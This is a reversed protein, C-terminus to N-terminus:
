DQKADTRGAVRGCWSMREGASDLLPNINFDRQISLAWSLRQPKRLQTQGLILFLATFLAGKSRPSLLGFHRISNSYRDPIHEALSAIFDKPKYTTIVVRKSRHDKTKSRIWDTSVETFRYQAIPPRRVYRCAYRPFHRKSTFRDLHASWWRKEEIQLLVELQSATRDTLLLGKKYASSIYTIVAFRWSQMLRSRNFNLDAIWSGRHQDLGGVSMLIHLHPNFNLHRGFTHQVVMILVLASHETKAYQQIVEAGLAPLDKLLHRNNQFFPWLSEPMTFTVGAYPIDPLAAWQSRQWLTTARHGCSSCARSKCTHHVVKRANDSAFIESGLAETKCLLMREFNKRASPRM